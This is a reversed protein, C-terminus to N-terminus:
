TVPVTITDSVVGGETLTLTADGFTVNTVTARWKSNPCTPTNPVTPTLTTLSFRFQGNRPTPQPGTTGTATVSTNQGPAVNGAPNTCTVTATGPASVNIQFTTGGLGAVKGDCTITTGNDTCTPTGVFHGSQASAVGPFAFMAAAVVALGLYRKM